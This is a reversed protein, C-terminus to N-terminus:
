KIAADQGQDDRCNLGVALYNVKVQEPNWSSPASWQMNSSLFKKSAILTDSWTKRVTAKSHVYFYQLEKVCVQASINM